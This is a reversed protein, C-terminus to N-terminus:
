DYGEADSLAAATDCAHHALVICHSTLLPLPGVTARVGGCRAIEADEEASFGLQDGFVFVANVMSGQVRDYGRLTDTLGSAGEEHVQVLPRPPTPGGLDDARLLDDLRAALGGAHFTWGDDSHARSAAGHAVALTRRMAAAVSREDPHLGRVAAGDLCVTVNHNQLALWVRTDRRVGHSLFIASSVCRALLDVRGAPLNDLKFRGRLVWDPTGHCCIILDRRRTPAALRGARNATQPVTREFGLSALRTTAQTNRSWAIPPQCAWSTAWLFAMGSPARTCYYEQSHQVSPDSIVQDEEEAGLVSWRPPAPIVLIGGSPQSPPVM